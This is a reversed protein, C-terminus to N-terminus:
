DMHFLLSSWFTQATGSLKDWLGKCLESIGQCISLTGQCVVCIPFHGWIYLIESVLFFFRIQFLFDVIRCDENDDHETPFTIRCCDRVKIVKRELGLYVLSGEHVQLDREDEKDWPGKWALNVQLYYTASSEYEFRCVARSLVTSHDGQQGAAVLTM